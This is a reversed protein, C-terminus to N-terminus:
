TKKPNLLRQVMNGRWCYATYEIVYVIEGSNKFYRLSFPGTFTVSPDTFKAFIPNNHGWEECSLFDISKDLM